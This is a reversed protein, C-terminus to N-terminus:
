RSLERKANLEMDEYPDEFDYRPPFPYDISFYRKGGRTVREQYTIDIWRYGYVGESIDSWGIVDSYKSTKLGLFELYESLTAYGRLIFNRNFHYACEKVFESSALFFQRTYTEFYLTDGTGTDFIDLDEQEAKDALAEMFSDGREERAQLVPAMGAIVASLANARKESILIASATLALAATCSAAAPLAKPLATKFIFEAKEKKEMYEYQQRRAKDSIEAGAKASYYATAAICACASLGVIYPAKSDIAKIVLEKNM